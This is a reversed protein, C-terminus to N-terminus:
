NSGRGFLARFREARRRKSRTAMTRISISRSEQANDGSAAYNPHEAHMIEAVRAWLAGGRLGQAARVRLEISHAIDDASTKESDGVFLKRVLRALATDRNLERLVEGPNEGWATAIAGINATLDYRTQWDGARTEAGPADANGVLYEGVLDGFEKSPSDTGTM